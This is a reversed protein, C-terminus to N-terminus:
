GPDVTGDLNTDEDGDRLGDGDTDPNTPNTPPVSRVEVGDTLGDGDTDARAPDTGASAEELVSLGDGDADPNVAAIRVPITAVATRGDDDTVRVAATGTFAAPYVHAISPVAGSSEYTGDGDADWEYREIEGDPDYSSSADLTVPEGAFGELPAPPEGLVAVPRKTIEGVADSITQAVEAADEASFVQGGTGDALTQFAALADTDGGVLVPYIEAPDVALAAAIVQSATYGTFPEPDHPPADGLLIVAKKAGDRWPLRIAEMLGSHVSEPWDNGGSVEVADLAREFDGADRSFPQDLRSPFDSPDGFPDFPHDKYTVLAIRYDAGTVSVDTVISRAAERVADIDDWMSGTTDIAFVLDLAAAGGTEGSVVYFPSSFSGYRYREGEYFRADDAFVLDWLAETRIFARGEIEDPIEIDLVVEGAAREASTVEHEIRQVDLACPDNDEDGPHSRDCDRPGVAVVIKEPAGSVIDTDVDDGPRVKGDETPAAVRGARWDVKLEVSGDPSVVTSGPGRGDITPLATAGLSAVTEGRLMAVRAPDDPDDARSVSRERTRADTRGALGILGENGWTQRLWEDSLCPISVPGVSVCDDDLIAEHQNPSATHADSGGVMALRGGRALVGDVKRLAFKSPMHRENIIEVAKVTSQRQLVGTSCDSANERRDGNKWCFWRSGGDPNDPHNIAGWGGASRVENLYTPEDCEVLSDAHFARTFYLGFHGAQPTPCEDIDIQDPLKDNPITVQAATGVEQGILPRTSQSHSGNAEDRLHGWQRAGKEEDYGPFPVTKCPWGLPPACFTRDREPDVGLWPGHETLILWDLNADDARDLVHGTVREACEAESLGECRPHGQLGSDGSAHVHVDGPTWESLDTAAQAPGACALTALATLLASRGPSLRPM